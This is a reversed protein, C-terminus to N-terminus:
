IAHQHACGISDSGGSQRQSRKQRAPPELRRIDDNQPHLVIAIERLFFLRQARPPPTDASPSLTHVGGKRPPRPRRRHTAGTRKPHPVTHQIASQEQRIVNKGNVVVVASSVSASPLCAEEEWRRGIESNGLECESKPLHFTTSTRVKRAAKGNAGKVVAKKAQKAKADVEAPQPNHHHM